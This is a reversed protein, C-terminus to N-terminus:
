TNATMHSEYDGKIQKSRMEKEESKIEMGTGREKEKEKAEKREEKGGHSVASGM